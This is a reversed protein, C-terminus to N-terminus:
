AMGLVHGMGYLGPSKGLAWLAARVAGTAYVRRDFSRHTLAIHETGAAFLLTHEGVVQGARLSAFGIAGTKRPGTHGDRGSEIGAAELTTSRGKAVAHGLALATGSPADVKQRHHTETIEADYAEAPLASALREAAALLLNVGPSFNAAYVIPIHRAAEALRAEQAANLGSTGLILPKRAAEAAAIHPIAADATTFDILVDATRALAAPDTPWQDGRRATGGALAAGAAAVEEVLLRGMRGTIGLIGISAM